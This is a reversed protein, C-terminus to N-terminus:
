GTYKMMVFETYRQHVTLPVSTLRSVQVAVAPPKTRHLTEIAPAPTSRCVIVRVWFEIPTSLRTFFFYGIPVQELVIRIVVM